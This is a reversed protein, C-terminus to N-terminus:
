QCGEVYQVAAFRGAYFRQIKGKETEFRLGYRGDSSRLTLYHGEETYQLTEVKLSPGYVRRADAESDGVQIGESTSIGRADVDVRALRGDEIMFAIHPHRTPEVYFCGQDGKDEPMSFKEHLVMNLQSLTMGIKAPGVGESRIVWSKSAQLPRMVLVALVLLVMIGRSIMFFM